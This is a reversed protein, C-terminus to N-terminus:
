RRSQRVVNAAQRFVWVRLPDPARITLFRMRPSSLCFESMSKRPAAILLEGHVPTFFENLQTTKVSYKDAFTSIFAEFTNENGDILDDNDATKRVKSTAKESRGYVYVSENTLAAIKLEDMQRKRDAQWSWPNILDYGILPKQLTVRGCIVHTPDPM